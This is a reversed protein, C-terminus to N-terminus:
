LGKDSTALVDLWRRRLDTKTISTISFIREGSGGLDYVIRMDPTIETVPNRTTIRYTARVNMRNAIDQERMTLPRITARVTEVTQWTAPTADFQVVPKSLKQISIFDRM